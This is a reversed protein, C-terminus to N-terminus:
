NRMVIIFLQFIFSLFQSAISFHLCLIYIFIFRLNLFSECVFLDQNSELVNKCMHHEEIYM